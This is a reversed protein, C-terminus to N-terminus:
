PVRGLVRRASPAKREDADKDRSICRCRRETVSRSCSPCRVISLPKRDRVRRVTSIAFIWSTVHALRQGVARPPAVQSEFARALARWPYGCRPGAWSFRPYSGQRHLGATCKESCGDPKGPNFRSMFIVPRDPASYHPDQGRSSIWSNLTKMGALMMPRTKESNM